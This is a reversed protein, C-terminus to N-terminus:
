YQYIVKGREIINGTKADIGLYLCGNCNNKCEWSYIVSNNNTTDPYEKSCKFLADLNQSKMGNDIAIQKAKDSTITLEKNIFKRFALLHFYWYDIIKVTSDFDARFLSVTDGKYIFDYFIQYTKPLQILTDTIQRVVYDYEFGTARLSLSFYESFEKGSIRKKILQQTLLLCSDFNSQLKKKSTKLKVPIDVIKKPTDTTCDAVFLIALFSLPLYIKM